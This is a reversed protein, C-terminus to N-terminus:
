LRGDVAVRSVSSVPNIQELTVHLAESRVALVPVPLRLAVTALKGREARDGLAALVRGLEADLDVPAIASGLVGALGLM